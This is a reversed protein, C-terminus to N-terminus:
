IIVFLFTNFRQGWVEVGGAGIGEFRCFFMDGFTSRQWAPSVVIMAHFSAGHCDCPDCGCVLCAQKM